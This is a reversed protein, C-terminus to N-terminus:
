SISVAGIVNFASIWIYVESTPVRLSNESTVEELDTM